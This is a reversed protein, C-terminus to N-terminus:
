GHVIRLRTPHGAAQEKTLLVKQNPFIKGKDTWLITNSINAYMAEKPKPKPKQKVPEAPVAEKVETENGLFDQM